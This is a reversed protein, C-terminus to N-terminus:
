PDLNVEVKWIASISHWFKEFPYGRFSRPMLSLVRLASTRLNNTAAVGQRHREAFHVTKCIVAPLRSLEIPMVVPQVASSSPNSERCHCSVGCRGHRSQPWGLRMSLPHRTNKRPSLATPAHLQGSVEMQHLNFFPPEISRSGWM